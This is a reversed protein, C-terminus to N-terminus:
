LYASCSSLLLKEITETYFKGQSLCIQFNGTAKCTFQKCGLSAFTVVILNEM